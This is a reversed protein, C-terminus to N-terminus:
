TLMGEGGKASADIQRGECQCGKAERRVLTEEGGKM